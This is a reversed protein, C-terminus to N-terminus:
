GRILYFEKKIGINTKGFQYDKLIKFSVNLTKNLVSVSKKYVREVVLENEYKAFEKGNFDYQTEIMLLKDCKKLENANELKIM